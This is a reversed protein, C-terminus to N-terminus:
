HQQSVEARTTQGIAERVEALWEGAGHAGSEAVLQMLKSGIIVGDAEAAAESAAESSSIGFGLAVPADVASRVRRLLEVAGPPLSERAGTVGAVSVCYVFGTAAQGIEAIRDDTSTPAALPCLAVGNQEALEGFEGVEDIPLDPIVLGSVGADAALELFRETGRAFIVNYYVLFVVPVRDSLGAALNLCYDLDAGNELARTTTDQITPGDALPDSFPVGIEIVDAGAEVYAEGVERAGDLTPYGATLYPMLAVMEGSFVKRLRESGKSM